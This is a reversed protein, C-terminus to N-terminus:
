GLTAGWEAPRLRPAYFRELPKLTKRLLDEDTVAGASEDAAQASAPGNGGPSPSAAPSDAPNPLRNPLSVVGLLTLLAALLAPVTLGVLGMHRSDDQAM